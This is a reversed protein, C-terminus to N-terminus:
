NDQGVGGPGEGGEGAGGPAGGVWLGVWGPDM